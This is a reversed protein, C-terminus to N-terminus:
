KKLSRAIQENATAVMCLTKPILPWFTDGIQQFLSRRKEDDVIDALLDDMSADERIWKFRFWTLNGKKFGQSKLYDGIEAVKTLKRLEGDRWIDDDKWTLCITVECELEASHEISLRLYQDEHPVTTHLVGLTACEDNTEQNTAVFEWEASDFNKPAHEELWRKLDRMFQNMLLCRIPDGQRLIDIVFPVNDKDTLFALLESQKTM